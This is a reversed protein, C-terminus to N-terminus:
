NATKHCEICLYLVEENKSKISDAKMTAEIRQALTMKPPENAPAPSGEETAKTKAFALLKSTISRRKDARDSGASDSSQAIIAPQNAASAELAPEQANSQEVTAKVADTSNNQAEEEMKQKAFELLKLTMRSRKTKTEEAVPTTSKATLTVQVPESSSTEGKPPTEVIDGKDAM